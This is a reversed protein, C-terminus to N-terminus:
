KLTRRISSRLDIIAVWYVYADDIDFVPSLGGAVVTEWAGGSVPIRRIEGGNNASRFAYVHARDVRIQEIIPYSESALTTGQGTAKSFKRLSGGAGWYVNADDVALTTDSQDGISASALVTSASGDHMARSLEGRRGSSWYVYAGDVEIADVGKLQSLETRGTGSVAPATAITDGTSWYVNGGHVAFDYCRTAINQKAAGGIKAVKFCGSSSSFYVNSDDVAFADISDQTANSALKVVSGGGKPSKFLTGATGGTPISIWFVDNADIALAIPTGDTESVLIDTAPSIADPTAADRAGPKPDDKQDPKPQTEISGGCAAGFVWTLALLYHFATNRLMQTTTTRFITRKDM